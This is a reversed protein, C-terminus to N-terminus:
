PIVFIRRGVYAPPDIRKVIVRDGDPFVEYIVGGVAELVSLGAALTRERAASFAAAAMPPFTAELQDIEHDTM